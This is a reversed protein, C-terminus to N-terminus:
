PQSLEIRQSLKGASDYVLVEDGDTVVILRDGAFTVAAATAGNPLSVSDPLEPLPAAGLRTWLIVIIAALGIVMAVALGAVLLKLFRLHPIAEPSQAESNPPTQDIDSRM